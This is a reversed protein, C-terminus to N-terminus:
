VLGVVLFALTDHAVHLKDHALEKDDELVKGDMGQETDDELGQKDHVQVMDHEQEKNVKEKDVLEHHGM